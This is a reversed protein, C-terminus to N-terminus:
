ETEGLLARLARVAHLKTVRVWVASRGRETAIAACSRGELYFARVIGRGPEPLREVAELVQSLREPDLEDPSPAPAPLDHDLQDLKCKQGKRRYDRLVTAAITEVWALLSPVSEGRFQPFHAIVRQQVEQALDSADAQQRVQLALLARVILRLRGLLVNWADPDLRHDRDRLVRELLLKLGHRDDM